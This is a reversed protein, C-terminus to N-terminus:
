ARVDLGFRMRIAIDFTRRTALGRRRLGGEHVWMGASAQVRHKDAKSATSEWATVAAGRAGASLAKQWLFHPQAQHRGKRWSQRSSQLTDLRDALGALTPPLKQDRRASTAYARAISQGASTTDSAAARVVEAPSRGDRIQAAGWWSALFAYPDPRDALALGGDNPHMAAQSRLRECQREAKTWGLIRTAARWIENRIEQVYPRALDPHYM